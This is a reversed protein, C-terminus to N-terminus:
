ELNRTRATDVTSHDVNIKGKSCQNQNSTSQYVLQPKRLLMRLPSIDARSVIQKYCVLSTGLSPWAVCAFSTGRSEFVLAQWDSVPLWVARGALRPKSHREYYQWGTLQCVRYCKFGNTKSFIYIKIHTWFSHLNRPESSSIRIFMSLWIPLSVCTGSSVVVPPLPPPM